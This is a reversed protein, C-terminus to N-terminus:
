KAHEVPHSFFERVAGLDPKGSPTRPLQDVIAIDTPIEYRALRTRLFEVLAVADVSAADRLEVMAAPTQGLRDDPRGVVAAGRVAPHGELATRVDDPMVKFGGRIIAQDARGLIWLFGDADIRAMDTTRMWDSSPGLQGPKVELLGAQDPGLPTGDDGVVRLQAGLSPRGVSGRKDHWYEQYDALTWGAVGGGFETAAYSTLVPIGFKATFADADEASLPATGSTVARISALDDRTLDSHLVMRLAAPVLSVARPRHRRVADAWRNLEFRDLLAFPRAECVCQLVRFVGGIHVLPANVIAVGQRLETPPASRDPELGIVSRALMDYTIDIRKPPGTTGSTLMRVAVGPRAVAGGDSAATVEPQDSLSSISVLTPGATVVSALDDREGVIFPLDLAEVDARTRDDGRSPNIVVVTGGALLVGLFSAVHAPKNRLLIGVQYQGVVLAKIAQALRAVERWTSWQGDYDIAAADPQLDLVDALRRSLPHDPM